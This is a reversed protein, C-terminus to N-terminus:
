FPIGYHFARAIFPSFLFIQPLIFHYFYLLIHIHIYTLILKGNEGAAPAGTDASLGHACAVHQAKDLLGSLHGTCKQTGFSHLVLLPPPTFPLPNFSGVYPINLRLLTAFLLQAAYFHM